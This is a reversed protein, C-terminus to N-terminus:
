GKSQVWTAGGDTTSFTRKDATVIIATEAGTAMVAVLDIAHPFRVRQWTRGDATRLVVGGRGVFWAAAASPAAGATLITSEPASFQTEWTAGGDLSVEIVRGASVRWQIPTGAVSVVLAGGLFNRSAVADATRQRAAGVTM